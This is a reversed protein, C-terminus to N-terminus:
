EYTNPTKTSANLVKAIAKARDRIFELCQASGPVFDRCVTARFAHISCDNPADPLGLYICSGDSNTPFAMEGFHGETLSEVIGARGEANWRAIDQETVLITGPRQHCCSGCRLCESRTASDVIRSIGPSESAEHTKPM